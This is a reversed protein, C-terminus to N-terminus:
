GLAEAAQQAPEPQRRAMPPQAGPPERHTGEPPAADVGGAEQDGAEGDNAFGATVSARALLSVNAPMAGASTGTKMTAWSTPAPAAVSSKRHSEGPSGSTAAVTTM